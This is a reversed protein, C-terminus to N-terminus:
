AVAISFIGSANWAISFNNATVTQDGGFDPYSILPDAPSTTTDDYVHAQAATFTVTTWTTDAADFTTTLSSVAYTKTGLAEGGATYNASSVENTVDAKVTDATQSISNTSTTLMVKLTDSLIDMPAEGATNGGGLNEMSSAYLKSTVAM